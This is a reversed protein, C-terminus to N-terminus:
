PIRKGLGLGMRVLKERLEISHKESPDQLLIWEQRAQSLSSFDEEGLFGRKYLHVIDQWVPSCVHIFGYVNRLLSLKGIKVLYVLPTTNSVVM